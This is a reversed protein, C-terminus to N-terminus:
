FLLRWLKMMNGSPLSFFIIVAYKGFGFCIYQVTRLDETSRFGM